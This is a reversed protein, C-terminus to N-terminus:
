CVGVCSESWRVVYVLVCMGMSDYTSRAKMDDRLRSSPSLSTAPSGMTTLQIEATRTVCDSLSLLSVFSSLLFLLYMVVVFCLSIRFLAIATLRPRSKHVIMKLFPGLDQRKFADAYSSPYSSPRPKSRRTTYSEIM